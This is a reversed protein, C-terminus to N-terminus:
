AGSKRQEYVTPDLVGAVKFAERREQCTGCVGCHWPQGNYCSYSLEMPAWIVDGQTVIDAKTFNVFPAILRIPDYHCLGMAISLADVFEQRCDPYIAHDGRHAAYAVTDIGNSIAFATAVALLIMNRNPVVTVRMTPDEYHGEPVAISPDTQSSGKLVAQLSSLDVITHPISLAKAVDTAAQLEISHRQGYNVSIALVRDCITKLYAALVTSDLGGSLLVVTRNPINIAEMFPFVKRSEELRSYVHM